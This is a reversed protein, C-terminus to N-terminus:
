DELSPLNLEDLFLVGCRTKIAEAVVILSDIAFEQAERSVGEQQAYIAINFLPAAVAVEATACIDEELRNLAQQTNWAGWATIAVLLVYATLLLRERTM